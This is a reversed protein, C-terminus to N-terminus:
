LTQVTTLIRVEDEPMTDIIEQLQSAAQTFLEQQCVIVAIVLQDMLQDHQRKAEVIDAKTKQNVYTYEELGSQVKKHFKEIEAALEM